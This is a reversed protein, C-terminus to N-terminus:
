PRIRTRVRRGHAAYAEAIAAEVAAAPGLARGADESGVPRAYGATEQGLAYLAHALGAKSVLGPVAHVTVAAGSTHSAATTGNAARIVSLRRPASIVAGTAHSVLETDEWGRRVTLVIGGAVDTVLMRESDVGITEGVKIGTASATVTVHNITDGVGPAAVTLGTTTMARDTVVMRETDVRILSGAGVAASDSVTLEPVAGDISATLTGTPYETLDYGWVGVATIGRQAGAAAFSSAKTRDLEIRNFPPGTNTPELYYDSSPITVGAVALSTLTILEHHGLWLQWPRGYSRGTPYNRTAVVPHFTRQLEYTVHGTAAQTARDIRPNIRTDTIPVQLATRVDERTVYTPATVSM